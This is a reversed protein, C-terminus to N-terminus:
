KIKQIKIFSVKRRKASSAQLYSDSFPPQQKLNKQRIEDVKIIKDWRTPDKLVQPNTTPNKIDSYTKLVYNTILNTGITAFDNGMFSLKDYCMWRIFESATTVDGELSQCLVNM